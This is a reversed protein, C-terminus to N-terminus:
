CTASEAILGRAVGFEVVRRVIAADDRSRKENESDQSFRILVDPTISSVTTPNGVDEFRNLAYHVNAAMSYSMDQMPGRCYADRLEDWTEVRCNGIPSLLGYCRHFSMRLSEAARVRAHALRKEVGLFRKTLLEVSEESAEHHGFFGFDAAQEILGRHDENTLAKWKKRLRQRFYRLQYENLGLASRIDRTTKGAAALRAVALEGSQLVAPIVGAEWCIDKHKRSILERPVSAFIPEDAATPVRELLRITTASLRGPEGYIVSRSLSRVDVLSYGLDSAVSTFSQWFLSRPMGGQHGSLGDAYCHYRELQSRSWFLPHTVESRECFVLLRAARIIAKAIKRVGPETLTALWQEIFGPKLDRVRAKRGLFRSARTCIARYDRLSKLQRMHVYYVVFSRLYMDSSLTILNEALERDDLLEMLRARVRVVDRLRAASMQKGDAVDLLVGREDPTLADFARTIATEEADWEGATEVLLQKLSGARDHDIYSGFTRRRQM